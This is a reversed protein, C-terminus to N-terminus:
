DRSLNELSACFMLNWLVRSKFMNFCQLRNETCQLMRMLWPGLVCNLSVTHQSGPKHPHCQLGSCFGRNYTPEPEFVLQPCPPPSRFPSTKLFSASGTVSWNNINKHLTLCLKYSCSRAGLPRTEGAVILRTNNVQTFQKYKLSSLQGDPGGPFSNIIVHM